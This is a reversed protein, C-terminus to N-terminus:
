NRLANDVNADDSTIHSYYLSHMAVRNKPRLPSGPGLPRGPRECSLGSKQDNQHDYICRHPTYLTVFHLSMSTHHFGKKMMRTSRVFTTLFRSKQRNKPAQSSVTRSRWFHGFVANKRTKQSNKVHKPPDSFIVHLLSKM